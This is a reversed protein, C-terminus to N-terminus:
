WRGGAIPRLENEPEATELTLKFKAGAVTKGNFPEPGDYDRLVVQKETTADLALYVVTGSTMLDNYLNALTEHDAMDDGIDATMTLTWRTGIKWLNIIRNITERRVLLPGPKVDWRVPGGAWKLAGDLWYYRAPGNEPVARLYAGKWTYGAM